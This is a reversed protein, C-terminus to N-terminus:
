GGLVFYSKEINQSVLVAGAVFFYTRPMRLGTVAVRFSTLMASDFEVVTERFSCKSCILDIGVRNGGDPRPFFLVHLLCRWFSYGFLLLM